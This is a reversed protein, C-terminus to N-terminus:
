LSLCKGKKKNQLVRRFNTTVNFQKCNKKYLKKNYGIGITKDSSSSFDDM